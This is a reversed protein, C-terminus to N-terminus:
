RSKGSLIEKLPQLHRLFLFACLLFGLLVFSERDGVELMGWDVMSGSLLLTLFPTVVIAFINGKHINKTLFYTLAWMAGWVIVFVWNVVLVAGAAPALGRGGKFSLWVPYNHGVVVALAALGLFVFSGGSWSRTLVVALAGKILDVALVTLGVFKSRTVEYSNLAGVNGTGMKRVDQHTKWKVLLYATPLSGIFYSM